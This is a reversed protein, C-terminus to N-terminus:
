LMIEECELWRRVGEGCKGGRQASLTEPNLERGEGELKFSEVRLKRPLKQLPPDESGHREGMGCRELEESEREGIATPQSSDVTLRKVGDVSTSATSAADLMLGKNAVRVSFM